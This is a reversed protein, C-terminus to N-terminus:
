ARGDTNERETRVWPANRKAFALLKGGLTLKWLIYLPAAALAAIDRWGARGLWLATGVHIGVLGLGTLAYCRVPWWPPALALLLLLVHFALPLLLLEFLPEALRFGGAVVERALGPAQEAIMRFRGGEWRARQGAAAKGGTPMASWVTTSPIFRVREGARVLRIHYELDEAISGADFPVKELTRRALGFGNGLIGVSCGWYERGRPRLDNFALWAIHMLRTRLSAAANDVLYRCQVAAAGAAFGGALATFFNPEVRTDADVVIFADHGEPLLRAFAHDLAYGKGRRETDHRELVRAGAAAALEATNDTCNDAIVVVELGHPAHECALLGKVCDAIGAAEDHAPMVVCLRLPPTDAPHSSESRRSLLAGSTLFALEATGPLSLIAPIAGAIAAITEIPM